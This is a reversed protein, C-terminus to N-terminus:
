GEWGLDGRRSGPYEGQLFTEGEPPELKASTGPLLTSFIAGFDGNVKHWTTELAARKKEDLEEMVEQIKRKDGEVVDRKRKLEGYEAEAKDFMAMVKKNVRKNMSELTKCAAEYEAYAQSTPHQHPCLNPHNPSYRAHPHAGASLDENGPYSDSGYCM